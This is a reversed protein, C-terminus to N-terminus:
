VKGGLRQLRALRGAEHKVVWEDKSQSEYARLFYTKADDTKGIAHLCEALEEDIYGNTENKGALSSEIPRLLALAEDFRGLLRLVKAIDKQTFVDPERGKDVDIAVLKRFTALANELEGTALYAEGLNNYLARLWGQQNVEVALAIGRLNWEVRARPDPQAIAVMHIADVALRHEGSSRALEFADRFLPLAKTPEGSSNFVRGRELLLRVRARPMEKTIMAEARDLSENAEGFRGQRGIARALQTLLEACYAINGSAEAAPLAARFRAESGANDSYNWLSDIDPLDPM